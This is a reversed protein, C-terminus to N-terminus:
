TLDIKFLEWHIMMKMLKLAHALNLPSLCLFSRSDQRASGPGTVPEYFISTLVNPHTVPGIVSGAGRCVGDKM